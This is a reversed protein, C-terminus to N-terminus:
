SRKPQPQEHCQHHEPSHSNFRAMITRRLTDPEPTFLPDPNFGSPSSLIQFVTLISYGIHFGVVSYFWTLRASSHLLCKCFM